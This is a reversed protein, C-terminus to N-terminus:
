TVRPGSFELGDNFHDIRCRSHEQQDGCAWSDCHRETWSQKRQVFSNQYRELMEWHTQHEVRAPLFYNPFDPMGQLQSFRERLSFRHIKKAIQQSEKYICSTNCSFENCNRGQTLSQQKNWDNHPVPRLGPRFRERGGGRSFHTSCLKFFTPGRLSSKAWWLPGPQNCAQHYMKRSFARVSSRPQKTESLRLSINGTTEMVKWLSPLLHM